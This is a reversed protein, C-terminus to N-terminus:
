VLVFRGDVEELNKIITPCGDTCLRVLIDTLYLSAILPLASQFIVKDLLEKRYGMLIGDTSVIFDMLM